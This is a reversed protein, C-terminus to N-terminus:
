VFMCLSDEDIRIGCRVLDRIQDETIGAAVLAELDVELWIEDHSANSVMDRDSPVLKDLLLFAHLDPRNSLRNEVREFKLFEDDFKDFVAEINEM